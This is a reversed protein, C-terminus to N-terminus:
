KKKAALIKLDNLQKQLAVMNKQSDESQKKYFDREKVSAVNIKKQDEVQSLANLNLKQKEQNVVVLQKQLLDYSRKGDDVIKGYADNVLKSKNLEDQLKALKENDVSPACVPPTFIVAPLKIVQPAIVVAPAEEVDCLGAKIAIRLMNAGNKIYDNTCIPTASNNYQDYVNPAGWCYDIHKPQSPAVLCGSGSGSPLGLNGKKSTQAYFDCFNGNTRSDFIFCKGVKNKLGLNFLETDGLSLLVDTARLGIAHTSFSALLVSLTLILKM